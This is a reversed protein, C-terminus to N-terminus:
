FGPHGMGVEVEAVEEDGRTPLSATYEEVHEVEIPRAEVFSGDGRPPAPSGEQAEGAGRPLQARGNGGRSPLREALAVRAAPGEVGGQRLAGAGGEGEGGGPGRQDEGHARPP